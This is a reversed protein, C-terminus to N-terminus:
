LCVILPQRTSVNVLPISLLVTELGGRVISGVLLFTQRIGSLVSLRWGKLAAIALARQLEMMTEAFTDVIIQKLFLASMARDASGILRAGPLLPQADIMVMLGAVDSADQTEGAVDRYTRRSFASFSQACERIVKLARLKWDLAVDLSSFAGGSFDCRKEGLSGVTPM